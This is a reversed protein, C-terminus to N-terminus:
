ETLDDFDVLERKKDCTDLSYKYIELYDNANTLMLEGGHAFAADFDTFFFGDYGLTKLFITDYLYGAVNAKLKDPSNYLPDDLDSKDISINNEMYRDWLYKMPWTTAQDYKRTKLMIEYLKRRGVYMKKTGIDCYPREKIFDNINKNKDITICKYNDNVVDPIEKNEYYNMIKTMDYAKWKKQESHKQKLKNNNTFPNNTLVSQTLDLLHNIDKKIKFIECKRDKFYTEKYSESGRPVFYFFSPNTLIHNINEKNVQYGTNHFLYSYNKTLINIPSFVNFLDNETIKRMVSIYVVDSKNIIVNNNMPKKWKEFLLQLPYGQEFKNEDFSIFNRKYNINSIHFKDNLEVNSAILLVYQKNQKYAILYVSNKHSKNNFYELPVHIDIENDIANINKIGVFRSIEKLKNDVSMEIPDDNNKKYFTKVNNRYTIYQAYLLYEHPLPLFNKILNNFYVGFYINNKEFFMEYLYDYNEIFKNMIKDYLLVDTHYKFKRSYRIFHLFIEKINQPEYKNYVYKILIYFFYFFRFYIYSYNNTNDPLYKIVLSYFSYGHEFCLLLIIKFDNDFTSKEILKQFEYKNINNHDNIYKKLLEYDYM